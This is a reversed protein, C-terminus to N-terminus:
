NRRVVPVGTLEGGASSRIVLTEGVTHNVATRRNRVVWNGQADAEVRTVLTRGDSLYISIVNGTGRSSTGMVTWERFRVQYEARTVRLVDAVPSITVVARDVGGPGTVTLQFVLDTAGEPFTFRANMTNAGALTVVPFGGIQEWFYSTGGTSASGDLTVLTGVSVERDFGAHAIVPPIATPLLTITVEAASSGGPGEVTLRFVLPVIENGTLNPAVFFPTSTTEGQLAVPPGSVQVWSWSSIVGTSASGDLIVFQGAIVSQPSGADATVPGPAATAGDIGVPETDSGGASSTVTVYAPPAVIGPFVTVPGTLPGFGQVTLQPPSARDSSFAEVLLEGRFTDFNARVITVDDVVRLVKTSPPNDTTNTVTVVQPVPGTFGLAGFYRPGDGTLTTTALGDGSVEINQNANSSIFAFVNGFGAADRGYSVRDDGVGAITAVKGQLFFLDTQICNLDGPRDPCLFPSGAVGVGPGEIRFVNTGFPSGTVRHAVTPDGVYGPPAQEIPDWTLFPGIRSLMAGQFDLRGGGIDETYNIARRGTTTVQFEDVGYPHTIRYNGPRNLDIRLRIRGFSIQDGPIVADVAFAAELAMILLASGASTTMESEAMWWFAEDPFNNPFSIPQNPNPIVGVPFNCLPDAGDLCLELALGSSDRYWVPFLHDPAGPGVAILHGNEVHNARVETSPLFLSMVFVFMSFSTRWGGATKM